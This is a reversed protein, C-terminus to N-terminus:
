HLDLVSRSVLFGHEGGVYECSIGTRLSTCQLDDVRVAQGYDLVPGGTVTDSVCQGVTAVDEPNDLSVIPLWDLECSAPRPPFAWDHETVECRVTGEFIGCALNGTPSTFTPMSGDTIVRVVPTPEDTPSAAVDSASASASTSTTASPAPRAATSAGSCGVLVLALLVSPTRM